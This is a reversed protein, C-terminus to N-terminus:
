KLSWQFLDVALLADSHSLAPQTWVGVYVGGKEELNKKLTSM